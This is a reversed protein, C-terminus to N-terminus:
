VGEVHGLALYVRLPQLPKRSQGLDHQERLMSCTTSPAGGARLRQRDSGGAQDQSVRAYPPNGICVTAVRDSKIAPAKAGEAATPDSMGELKAEIRSIMSLTRSCSQPRQRLLLRPMLKWRRNSMPSPTPLQLMPELGCMSPAVFTEAHQPWDEGEYSFRPCSPVMGCPVHRHGDSSRGDFGFPAAPDIGSPVSIISPRWLSGSWPASDAIGGSLGFRQKLIEDVLRPWANSLQAPLTSSRVPKQVSRSPDCASLFEEYFHIVPDGGQVSSGFQDLVAEINVTERLDAVPLELGSAELDLEFTSDYVREFFAGLFGNSLPIASLTSAVGRFRDPGHDSQQSCRLCPDTCGHRRFESPRCGAVLQRRVDTLLSSFPGM